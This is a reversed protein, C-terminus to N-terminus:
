PATYRVAYINRYRDLTENWWSLAASDGSLAQERMKQLWYASIETFEQASLGHEDLIAQQDFDPHTSAAEIHGQVRAYNEFELLKPSQPITGTVLAVRDADAKSFALSYATTLKFEPDNRLAQMFTQNIQEFRKEDVALDNLVAGRDEHNALRANAAAWAEFSVGHVPAPLEQALSGSALLLVLASVLLSSLPKM